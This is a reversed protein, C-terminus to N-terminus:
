ESSFVVNAIGRTISLFNYSEVFARVSYTYERVQHDQKTVVSVALERNVGAPNQVIVPRPTLVSSKLVCLPAVTGQLRFGTYPSPAPPDQTTLRLITKNFMSGNLHGSPQLTHHDLAFSYANVGQLGPGPHHRYNQLLSYFEQPKTQEREAGDLILTADIVVNQNAVNQGVAYGSSFWPTVNKEMTSLPLNENYWNTYNDVGNNAFVDSRQGVWVVRTCLNMMSLELDNGPGYVGDQQVVRMEKIMFSNDSKALQIVEPDSLFIYTADVYPNLVWNVLTPNQPSGDINPPSLFRNMGFEPAALDPAIRMGFTPSSQRVDRVTFLDYINKFEVVIEVESYQLAVLPLSAGINECFWFHLPIVLERGQIAPAAHSTHSTISHPYQNYRDLANAPDTLEPINGVLKDLVARKTGNYNLYSYLKMWEGTHTVIATGNVLVSVSRIMNYGINPIWQFEYGIANSSNNIPGTMGVPRTLPNVPSFVDPLSVHIYCDHVLQANRDVKARFTKTFQPHLDLNTGRFNLVFHEMAFETHRKYVSRFHTFTPNGTTLQDQAGKNVLQILGGPM